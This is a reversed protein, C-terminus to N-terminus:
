SHQPPPRVELTHLIQTQLHTIIFLGRHLFLTQSINAIISRITILLIHFILIHLLFLRRLILAEVSDQRIEIHGAMHHRAKITPVMFPGAIGHLVKITLFLGHKHKVIKVTKQVARIKAKRSKRSQELRKQGHM